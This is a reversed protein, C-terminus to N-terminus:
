QLNSQIFADPLHGLHLHLIYINVDKTSVRHSQVGQPHLYCRFYYSVFYFFIVLGYLIFPKLVPFITSMYLYVYTLIHGGNDCFTNHACHCGIPDGQIFMHAHTSLCQPSARQGLPKSYTFKSAM